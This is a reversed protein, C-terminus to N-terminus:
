TTVLRSREKRSRLVATFETLMEAEGVTWWYSDMYNVVNNLLRNYKCSTEQMHRVLESFLFLNFVVFCCTM